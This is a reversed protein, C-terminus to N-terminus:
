NGGSGQRRVGPLGGGGTVRNVREQFERQSQILSASPLILVTDSATLGETVEAYDLDTLGTKIEVAEPGAARMAFVIYTGGFQFNDNQQHQERGGAGSGGAASMVRRLLSREASSLAQFGGQVM